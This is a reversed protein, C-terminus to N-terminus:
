RRRALPRAQTPPSWAAQLPPTLEPAGFRRMWSATALHFLGYVIAYAAGAYLLMFIDASYAVAMVALAVNVAAWPSLAVRTRPMPWLALALVGAVVATAALWGASLLLTLRLPIATLTITLVALGLALSGDALALLWGRTERRAHISLLIEYIAVLALLSGAFMMAMVLTEDPWRLAVAGGVLMLAGKLYLAASFRAADRSGNRM